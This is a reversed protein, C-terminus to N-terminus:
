QTTSPLVPNKRIIKSYEYCGLDPAIGLFSLEVNLGQDIVNSQAVLKLFPLDPLSGDLKRPGDMGSSDVSLFDSDKVAVGLNWSNHQESVDDALRNEAGISFNNRLDHHFPQIANFNAMGNNFATNNYWQQPGMCVNDDFGHARNEFALCRHLAHEPGSKNRGMKFGNGDGGLKKTDPIYGNWFAWCNEFTIPAEAKWLDYGDDSNMWARCGRFINGVAKGSTFAISAGDANGGPDNPTFPDYNHHFDSNLILNFSSERYLRLGSGEHHHSNINEFINHQCNIGTIGNAGRPSSINMPVGRVEIGKFHWYSNEIYIGALGAIEATMGSCDLVPSEGPWAWFKILKNPQGNRGSFTIGYRSNSKVKYIGGRLFITDGPNAVDHGKQWTAFPKEMSGVATDNGDPAVYYEKAWSTM